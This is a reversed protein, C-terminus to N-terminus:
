CVRADLAFIRSLRIIAVLSHKRRSRHTDNHIAWSLIVQFVEPRDQHFQPHPHDIRNIETPHTDFIWITFTPV